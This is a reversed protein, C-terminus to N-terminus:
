TRQATEPEEDDTFGAVEESYKGESKLIEYDYGTKDNRIYVVNADGSLYGFRFNDLGFVEDIYDGVEAAVGVIADRDDVVVRDGEFFTFTLNPYGVEAHMFADVPIIYPKGSARAIEENFDEPLDQQVRVEEFINTEIPPRPDEGRIAALHREPPGPRTDEKEPMYKLGVLVKELTENTVSSSNFTNGTLGEPILKRVADEPTSFEGKKHFASYIKKTEEVERELREEFEEGLKKKAYFYGGVAGAALSLISTGGLILFKKDM